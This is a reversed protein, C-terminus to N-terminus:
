RENAEDRNFKWGKTDLRIATFHSLVEEVSSFRKQGNEGIDNMTIEITKGRLEEPVELIISKETPTIIQTFM